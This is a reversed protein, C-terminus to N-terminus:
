TQDEPFFCKNAIKWQVSEEHYRKCELAVHESVPYFLHGADNLKRFFYADAGGWAGRGDYWGGVDFYLQRRHMFSNHDIVDWAKKLVESAKRMGRVNGNRDVIHQASYAVDVEPNSEFFRMYADLRQPYYYDDDTLYTIFEGSSMHTIAYNINTAYRTTEYRRADAINTRHVQMRDDDYSALIEHVREDSSNDDVILLEFDEYSQGLVSDISEGIWDANNYSTMVISIKPM